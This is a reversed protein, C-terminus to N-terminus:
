SKLAKIVATAVQAQTPWVLPKWNSDVEPMPELFLAGNERGMYEKAIYEYDAQNQEILQRRFEPKLLTSLRSSEGSGLTKAYSLLVAHTQDDAEVRQFIDLYQIAQLPLGMNDRNDMVPLKEVLSQQGIATLFDSALYPQNQEKEYPRVIINEKGFAAVWREVLHRYKGYHKNRRRNFNIFGVPGINWPPSRKMKVAQTYASLWWHDHRRLYVVVKVDYGKFFQKVEAVPKNLLLDESSFVVTHINGNLESRFSKFLKNKDKVWSENVSPNAFGLSASLSYHASDVLGTKPYLIGNKALEKRNSYLYSQLASTGTKNMGIHIIIKPKVRDKFFNLIV